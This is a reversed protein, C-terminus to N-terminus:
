APGALPTLEARLWAAVAADDPPAFGRALAVSRSVEEFLDIQALLARALVRQDLNVAIDTQVLRRDDLWQEAKRAEARAPRGALRAEEALLAYLHERMLAHMWLVASRPEPRAVKKSVWIAKVWFASVHRAYVQRSVKEDPWSTKLAALRPEWGGSDVLLRFGSGLLFTRTERIGHLLLRPMRDALRPHRMSWFVVRMQWASLPVFDAEIGNAFVASVKIVGRPTREAHACWCPAVEALWRTNRYDEPRTTILQFDWDSLGDVGATGARSGGLVLAKIDPRRQAWAVIRNEFEQATMSSNSRAPVSQLLDRKISPKRDGHIDM